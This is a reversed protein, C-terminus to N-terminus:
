SAWSPVTTPAPEIEANNRRKIPMLLGVAFDHKWFMLMGSKQKIAFWTIPDRQSPTLRYDAAKTVDEMYKQNFGEHSQFASVKEEITDEKTDLLSAIKPYDGDIFRVFETKEFGQEYYIIEMHDDQIDLQIEPDSFKKFGRFKKILEKVDSLSVLFNFSEYDVELEDAVRVFILRYRDTAQAVLAKTDSNYAFNVASLTPLTDDKSAFLAANSLANFFDGASLTFLVVEELPRETTETTETDPTITTM